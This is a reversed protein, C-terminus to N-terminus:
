INHKCVYAVEISYHLSEGDKLLIDVIDKEHYRKLYGIFANLYTPANEEEYPYNHQLHAM